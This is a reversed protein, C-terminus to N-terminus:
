EGPLHELRSYPKSEEVKIPMCLPHPELMPSQWFDLPTVKSWHTKAMVPDFKKLDIIESLIKAFISSCNIKTGRGKVPLHKRRKFSRSIIELGIMRIAPDDFKEGLYKNLVDRDIELQERISEQFQRMIVFDQSENYENINRLIVKGVHGSAELVYVSGDFRGLVLFMHNPRFMDFMGCSLLAIGGTVVRDYGQQNLGTRHVFGLQYPFLNKEYELQKKKVEIIMYNM